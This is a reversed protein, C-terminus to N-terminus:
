RRKGELIEALTNFCQSIHAKVSCDPDRLYVMGFSTSYCFRCLAWPAGEAEGGCKGKVNEAGCADCQEITKM